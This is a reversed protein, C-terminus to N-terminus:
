RSAIFKDCVAEDSYPYKVTGRIIYDEHGKGAVVLVEKPALEALAKILCKERDALRYFDKKIGPIIDDIIKEPDETRPNDSTVYIYDAYSSVAEAMLPRKTRDRDGGCGFLVKLKCGLYAEKANQCVNKLADPTHAYDIIVIKSDFSKLMWRGPANTIKGGDISLSEVGLINKAMDYAVLFNNKAFSAKFIDNHINLNTQEWNKCQVVRPDNKIKELINEQDHPVYLKAGPILYELIKQKARFYNEMNGHYDLHDQSFSTWGASNLKIGYFRQQDLAHSSMEFVVLMQKKTYQHLTKRFDIYSPSTLAYDQVKKGDVFVGLTGISLVSIKQQLLIQSLFHVTSTKGNTGTVAAFKLNEASPYLVDCCQRQLELWSESPCLYVPINEKILSLNREDNLVVVGVTSESLNQLLAVIEQKGTSKFFLLSACQSEQIKWELQKLQIISTPKRLWYGLKFSELKESNFV